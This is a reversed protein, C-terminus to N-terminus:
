VLIGWRLPVEGEGLKRADWKDLSLLEHLMAQFIM